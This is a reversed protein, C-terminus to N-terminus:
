PTVKVFVATVSKNSNMTITTFAANDSVDGEWHDFRYGSVPTATLSIAAGEDYTGSGPSVSGSGDPSVSITLTYVKVFIATVSKNSNMTINATIATGSADGGWHDFRYGPAPNATLITISDKTFRGDTGPAPDVSVLGGTFSISSSTLPQNNITLQFRPEFTVAVHKDSSITVTAPNSTNSSTGSWSKWGYGPAPTATLTVTTNKAYKDDTGAAPNVSVSGENFSVGSGIVLEDNIILSFRPEFTVTEQKNGSMTVTTPNSADNDTGSWSKWDYDPAPIAILTVVADKTYKGDNGPAPYVSVSGDTFSVITGIVLQNNIILSFRPEFTVKVQKNSSMTVTTPNSTDNDTGSWSKWDYGPAPNATLTVVTDEDYKGNSRPGPSVSVSGQNLSVSPGTVGQGNISLIIGQSRTFLYGAAGAIVCALVILLWWRKNHLYLRVLTYTSSFVFLTILGLAIDHLQFFIYSLLGLSFPVWIYKALEELYKRIM